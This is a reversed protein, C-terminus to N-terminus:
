RATLAMALRGDELPLFGDLPPLTAGLFSWGHAEGAVPKHGGPAHVLVTRPATALDARLQQRDLLEAWNEPGPFEGRVTHVATWARAAYLALCTRQPEVLLLWTGEDAVTGRWRNFASMLYPQASVLRAKGQPPFCARIAQILETDVASALRGAGHPGESLRVDWNRTREGHVKAFHFRALALEEDPGTVGADFPVVAYRVFHNSLVVTADLREGRLPLVAEALAATAGQWSETGFAPDCGFAEKALIRPRPGGAVRAFAVADPALSILLRDRWL